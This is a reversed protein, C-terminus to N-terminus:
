LWKMIDGLQIEIRAQHSKMRERHQIEIQALDLRM